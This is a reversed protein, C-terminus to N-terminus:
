FLKLGLTMLQSLLPRIQHFFNRSFLNRIRSTLDYQTDKTHISPCPVLWHYKSFTVVAVNDRTPQSRAYGYISFPNRDCCMVHCLWTKNRDTTESFTVFTVWYSAWSTPTYPTEHVYPGFLDQKKLDFVATIVVPVKDKILVFSTRTGASNRAEHKAM